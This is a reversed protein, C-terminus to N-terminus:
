LRSGNIPMGHVVAGIHGCILGLDLYSPHGAEKARWGFAEDEGMMRKDTNIPTFFGAENGLANDSMTEPFKEAIDLFVKRHVALVGTGCFTAPYLTDYPIPTTLPQSGGAIMKGQGKRDWYCGGVVSKGWSLLREVTNIAAFKHPLHRMGTMTLYIGANGFPFVMDEDIWISWQAETRLFRKALQNRSRAIMADDSRKELCMKTKDWVAMLCFATDPMVSKYWPLCFCVDRGQWVNASPRTLYTDICKLLIENNKKSQKGTLFGQIEELSFGLDESAKLDDSRLKEKIYEIHSM